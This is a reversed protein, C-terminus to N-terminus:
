REAFSLRGPRLLRQLSIGGIEKSLIKLIKLLISKGRNWRTFETQQREFEADNGGRWLEEVFGGFSGALDGSANYGLLVKLLLGM